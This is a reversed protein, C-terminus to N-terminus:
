HREVPLAFLNFRTIMQDHEVHFALTGLRFRFLRSGEPESMRLADPLCHAIRVEPAAGTAYRPNVFRTCALRNGYLGTEVRCEQFGLGVAARAPGMRGLSAFAPRENAATLLQRLTACFRADPVQAQANGAGAIVLLAAAFWPRM